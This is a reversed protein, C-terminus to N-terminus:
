TKAPPTETAPKEVKEETIEIKVLDQIGEINGFKEITKNIEAGLTAGIKRFAEEIEAETPIKFKLIVEKPL